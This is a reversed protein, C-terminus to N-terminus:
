IPSPVLPVLRVRGVATANFKLNLLIKAPMFRVQPVSIAGATEALFALEDLYEIVQAETQDKQIVGVLVAREAQLIKNKNDIM